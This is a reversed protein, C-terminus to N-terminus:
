RDCCLRFEDKGASGTLKEVQADGSVIYLAEGGVGEGNLIVRCLHFDVVEGDKSGPLLLRRSNDCAGADGYGLKGGPIYLEGRCFGNCGPLVPLPRHIDQSELCFDCTSGM